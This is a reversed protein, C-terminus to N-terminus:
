GGLDKNLLALFGKGAADLDAPTAQVEGAGNAPKIYVKVQDLTQMVQDIALVVEAGSELVRPETRITGDTRNSEAVVYDLDILAELIAAWVRDPNHFYSGTSTTPSAKSLSSCGISIALCLVMLVAATMVPRRQPVNLNDSYNM